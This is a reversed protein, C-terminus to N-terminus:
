RSMKLDLWNIWDRQLQDLSGFCDAFEAALISRPAAGVRRSAARSLYHKLQPKRNHWLFDFFAWCQAYIETDTLVAWSLRSMSAFVDLPILRGQEYLALVTQERYRNGESLGPDRFIYEFATAMGESAWMPYEVGRTQLGTNFALQHILEHTVMARALDASAEDQARDSFDTASVQHPRDFANEAWLREPTDTLVAVRNTKASYYSKPPNGPIGDARRSYDEYSSRNNFWLWTFPECDGLGYGERRMLHLFRQRVTELLELAEATYTTDSELYLRFHDSYLYAFDSPAAQANAASETYYRYRSDPSALAIAPACILLTLITLKKM